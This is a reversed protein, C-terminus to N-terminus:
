VEIGITLVKSLVQWKEPCSLNPAMAKVCLVATNTSNDHPASLLAHISNAYIKQLTPSM